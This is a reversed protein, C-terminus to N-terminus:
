TMKCCSRNQIQGYMTDGTYEYGAACYMNGAGTISATSCLTFGSGTCTAQSSLVTGDANICTMSRPSSAYNYDCTIPYDGGCETPSGSPPSPAAPTATDVECCFNDRYVYTNDGRICKLTDGAKPMFGSIFPSAVLGPALYDIAISTCRDTGTGTGAAAPLAAPWAALETAAPQWCM